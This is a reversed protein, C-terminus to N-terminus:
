KYHFLTYNMNLSPIHQQVHLIQELADDVFLIWDNNSKVHKTTFYKVLSDGKTPKGDIYHSCIINYQVYKGKPHLKASNLQNNTKSKYEPDRATLFILNAPNTIYINTILDKVDNEVLKQGINTSLITDDIDTVLIVNFGLQKLEQVCDLVKCIKTIQITKNNYDM